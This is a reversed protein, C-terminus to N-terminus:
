NFNGRRSLRRHRAINDDHTSIEHPDYFLLLTIKPPFCKVFIDNSIMRAAYFPSNEFLAGIDDLSHYLPDGKSTGNSQLIEAAYFDTRVYYRKLKEDVRRNLAHQLREHSHQLAKMFISVSKRGRDERDRRPVVSYDPLHCRMINRMLEYCQEYCNQVRSILRVKSSRLRESVDDGFADDIHSQPCGDMDILAQASIDGVRVGWTMRGGAAEDTYVPLLDWANSHHPSWLDTVWQYFLSPMYGRQRGGLMRPYVFTDHAMFTVGKDSVSNSARMKALWKLRRTDSHADCPPYLQADTLATTEPVLLSVKRIWHNPDRLMVVNSTVDNALESSVMHQAAPKPIMMCVIHCLGQYRETQQPEEDACYTVAVFEAFFSYLRALADFEGMRSANREIVRKIECAMKAGDECDTGETISAPCYMDDAVRRVRGSRDRAFAFDEIYPAAVCLQTLVEVSAHLAAEQDSSLQTPYASLSTLQRLLSLYHETSELEPYCQLATNVSHRLQQMVRREGLDHQHWHLYASAPLVVGTLAIFYPVHCEYLKHVTPSILAKDGVCMDYYPKIYDEFIRDSYEDPAYTRRSQLLADVSRRGDFGIDLVIDGVTAKRTPNEAGESRVLEFRLAYNVVPLTLSVTDDGNNRWRAALHDLPSFFTGAVVECPVGAANRVETLVYGGLVPAVNKVSSLESFGLAVSREHEAGRVPIARSTHGGCFIVITSPKSYNRASCSRVICRLM